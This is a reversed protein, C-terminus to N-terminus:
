RKIKRIVTGILFVVFLGIAVTGVFLLAMEIVNNTRINSIVECVVYVIFGAAVGSLCKRMNEIKLSIVVAVILGIIMFIISDSSFLEDLIPLFKM